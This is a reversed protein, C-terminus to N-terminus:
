RAFTSAFNPLIHQSISNMALVSPPPLCTSPIHTHNPPPHYICDTPASVHAPHTPARAAPHQPASTTSSRRLSRDIFRPCAERVGGGCAPRLGCGISMTSEVAAGEDARVEEGVGKFLGEAKGFM